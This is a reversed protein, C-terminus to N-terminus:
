CMRENRVINTTQCNMVFVFSCSSQCKIVKRACFFLIKCCTSLALVWILWYAIAAQDSGDKESFYDASRTPDRFRLAFDRILSRPRAPQDSYKSM